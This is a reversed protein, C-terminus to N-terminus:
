RWLSGGCARIYARAARGIPRRRPRDSRILWRGFDIISRLVNTKGGYFLFTYPTFLAYNLLIYPFPMHLYSIIYKNTLRRASVESTPRRGGHHELEVSVVSPTYKIKWGADIIRYALEIEELGYFIDDSFGGVEDFM